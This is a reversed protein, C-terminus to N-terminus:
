IVKNRQFMEGATLSHQLKRVGTDGREGYVTVYLNAFTEAGWLDGTHVSIIYKHVPLPKQNENVAPFEKVLERHERSLSLWCSSDFNLVRNTYVEEMEFSKLHWGEFGPLDDCSVRIKYVDGIDGSEILFEDTAGPQFCVYGLSQPSLLLEDSKGKSGYMILTRKCEQPEPSDEATKVWVRWQGRTYVTSASGNMIAILERETKGDDQYEDLWQDTVFFDATGPGTGDHSILVKNLVGLSVASMYFMDTQLFVFILTVHIPPFSHERSAFARYLKLSFIKRMRINEDPLLEKKHRRVPIERWTDSDDHDESLWSNITLHIEKEPPTSMKQLRIEHLYWSPDPGSNDHGIRIKYLEGVDKLNIIFDLCKMLGLDPFLTPDDDDDDDDIQM